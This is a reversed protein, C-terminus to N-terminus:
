SGRRRCAQVPRDASWGVRRASAARPREVLDDALIVEDRRSPRQAFHDLAVQQLRDDQPPRGPVPLVVSARRIASRVRASNTANEATSDPMLSTFSTMAAASCRRRM